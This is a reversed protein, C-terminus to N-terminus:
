VQDNKSAPLEVPLVKDGELEAGKVQGNDMEFRQAQPDLEPLERKEDVHDYNEVENEHQIQEAATRRKRSRYM